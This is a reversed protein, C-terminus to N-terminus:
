LRPRPSARRAGAGHGSLRTGAMWGGLLPRPKKSVTALVSDLAKQPPPGEQTWNVRVEYTQASGEEAGVTLQVIYGDALPPLEHRGDGITFGIRLELYWKQM